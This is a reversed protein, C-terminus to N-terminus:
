VTLEQSWAPFEDGPQRGYLQVQTIFSPKLRPLMENVFDIMQQESPATEAEFLIQLSHDKLNAKATIGDPQLAQNILTTLQQIGDQSLSQDPASTANLDIAGQM